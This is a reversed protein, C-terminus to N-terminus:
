YTPHEEEIGENFNLYLAAVFLFSSLRNIYAVVADDLGHKESVAVIRREARRAISRAVHLHVAGENGGPLVFQKLEPLKAAMPEIAKEIRQVSEPAMIAKKIAKNSLSALNAGIIFLDNQIMRLEKRLHEDRIYYISLGIYSNLEDVNGIADVIEDSKSVRHDALIGTSGKDGKGTYYATLIDHYYEM